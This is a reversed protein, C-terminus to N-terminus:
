AAPDQRRAVLDAVANVTRAQADVLRRAVDAPVDGGQLLHAKAAYWDSLYGWFAARQVSFMEASVTM